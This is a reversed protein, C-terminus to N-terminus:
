YPHAQNSRVVVAIATGYADAGIFGAYVRGKKAFKKYLHHYIM